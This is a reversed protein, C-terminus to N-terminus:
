RERHRVRLREPDPQEAVAGDAARERRQELLARVLDGRHGPQPRFEDADEGAAAAVEGVDELARVEDDLHHAAEVGRAPVDEGRHGGPAVDHGRVLLQEALVPLLQPRARALVAHLQAELRRDGPDDRDDAHQLLREGGGVDVAQVPDDVARRVEDEGAHGLGAGRVVVREGLGLPEPVGLGVRGLVDVALVRRGLHRDERAKREVRGHVEVVHAVLPDLVDRALVHLVGALEAEPRLSM